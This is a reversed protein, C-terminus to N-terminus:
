VAIVEIQIAADPRYSKDLVRFKDGSGILGLGALSRFEDSFEVVDGRELDTLYYGGALEIVLRPEDLDDKIWDLIAQAMTAGTIYPFALQEGELTGYKTVSGSATATVVARDAERVDSYGSWDRQYRATFTNLIDKRNTYRIWVQNLDVRYEDLTKDTSESAPIHVLHHVGAEWFEISKAQHAIRNILARVNPRQLIVVALTFSNTNYFTGAATYSTSDIESASLGCRDILMHKLIHDPREILANASGTYTGSGDDQFGDVDVAVIGGIVADAVSNGTYSVAGSRATTQEYGFFRIEIAEITVDVDGDFAGTTTWKIRTASSPEDTSTYYIYPHSVETDIAGTDIKFLDKSYSSGDYPKDAELTLTGQTGLDNVTVSWHITVSFGDNNKTKDFTPAFSIGDGDFSKGTTDSSDWTVPLVEKAGGSYAYNHDSVGRNEVDVDDTLRQTVQDATFKICAKGPFSAHEDGSQGTYATYNGSQRVNKVYVADIAKVAHGIIYNYESKDEAVGSGADHAAATTGGTGRTCGTLQNSSNGTYTIEEAGVRVTGSSPFASSDSLTLTTGSATVDSVLTSLAGADVALFPVKKAQGYVQPLMKGIDDPDADAYTTADVIDHSFKHAVDLEYGSCAVTVEKNTMGTFDEIQGKFLDIEDSTAGAVNQLIMSITVTTYHPDYSSFLETFRDAGGVPRNNDVTFSAEGPAVEYTIPHIKGCKITGWKIVLPEYLQSDHVCESGADGWVRDCLYLTLGSFAIQVLLIPEVNPNDIAEDNHTNLTKM